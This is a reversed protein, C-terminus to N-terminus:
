KSAGSRRRDLYRIFAKWQFDNRPLPRAFRKNFETLIAQGVGDQIVTAVFSQKARRLGDGTMKVFHGRQEAEDAM